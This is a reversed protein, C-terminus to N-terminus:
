IANSGLRGKVVSKFIRSLESEPLADLLRFGGISNLEIMVDRFVKREFLAKTGAASMVLGKIIVTFLNASQAVTPREIINARVDSKLLFAELAAKHDIGAVRICLHAMWWLRSVLNDREVQRNTRAFFHTEIHSVAAEDDAPIPWRARAYELFFTHSLYVWLREDRADYPALGELFGHVVLCNDVEFLDDGDPAKLNLLTAPDVELPLEHYQAVDLDLFSFDGTRYRELNDRVGKRLTLVTADRALRTKM